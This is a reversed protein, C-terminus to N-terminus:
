VIEPDMYISSGSQRPCFASFNVKHSALALAERVRAADKVRSKLVMDACGRAGVVWARAASDEM